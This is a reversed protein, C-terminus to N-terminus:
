VVPNNFELFFLIKKTGPAIILSLVTNYMIDIFFHEKYGQFILNIQFLDKMLANLWLLFYLYIQILSIM